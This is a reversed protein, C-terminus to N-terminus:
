RDPAVADTEVRMLVCRLSNRVQFQGDNSVQQASGPAELVPGQCRDGPVGIRFTIVVEPLLRRGFYAATEFIATCGRTPLSAVM